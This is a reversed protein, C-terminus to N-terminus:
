AQGTLLYSQFPEHFKFIIEVVGSKVMMKTETSIAQRKPIWFLICASHLPLNYGERSKDPCTYCFGINSIWYKLWLKIQQHSALSLLQHGSCVLEMLIFISLTPVFHYGLNEVVDIISRWNNHWINTLFNNIKLKYNRRLLRFYINWPM